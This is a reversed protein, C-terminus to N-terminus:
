AARSNLFIGRIKIKFRLHLHFIIKGLEPIEWSDALDGAKLRMLNVGGMLFTTENTGAPGKTWDGQLLENNTLNLTYASSHPTANFCDDFIIPDSTTGIVISGGYQPKESYTTTTPTTVPPAETQTITGTVSTTGGEETTTTPENKCSMLLMAVVTLLTLLIWPAKRTM